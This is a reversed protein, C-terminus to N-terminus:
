LALLLKSTMRPGLPCGVTVEASFFLASLPHPRTTGAGRRFNRRTVNPPAWDVEM